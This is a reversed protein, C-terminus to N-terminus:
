GFHRPSFKYHVPHFPKPPYANVVQNPVFRPQKVIKSAFQLGEFDGKSATDLRRGFAILANFELNQNVKCADVASVLILRALQEAMDHEMAVTFVGNFETIVYEPDESDSRSHKNAKADSFSDVVDYWDEKAENPLTDILDKLLEVFRQNFIIHVQKNFLSVNFQPKFFKSDM